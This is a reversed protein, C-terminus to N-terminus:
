VLEFTDISTRDQLVAASGNTFDAYQLICLSVVLCCMGGADCGRDAEIGGGRGKCLRVLASAGAIGKHHIRVM